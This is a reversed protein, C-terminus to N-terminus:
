QYLNILDNLSIDRREAAEKKILITGYVVGNGYNAQHFNPFGGIYDNSSAYDHVARFRAENNSPNGLEAVSIDRREAAEKKILITGYVVGNGYNAQHFNPFGGIYDNSSAYDHIARFRADNNSPNNLKDVSVDAVDVYEPKFLITGFIIGQGNNAQHFNPYGGEFGFRGSIDNIARFRPEFNVVNSEGKILPQASRRFRVYLRVFRETTVKEYRMKLPNWVKIYVSWYADGAEVELDGAGFIRGKNKLVQEIFDAGVKKALDNLRQGLYEMACGFYVCALLVAADGIGYSESWLVQDGGTEIDRKMTEFTSERDLTISM